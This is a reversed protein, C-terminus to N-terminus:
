TAGGGAGRTEVLHAREHKPRGMTKANAEDVIRESTTIQKQLYSMIQVLEERQEEISGMGFSRVEGHRDIWIKM